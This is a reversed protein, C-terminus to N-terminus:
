SFLKRFFGKKTEQEQKKNQEETALLKQFVTANMNQLHENAKMLENDKKEYEKKWYEKEQKLDEIHQKLINILETNDSLVPTAVSSLEQKDVQNFQQNNSKMTEIRKERLYNIGKETIYYDGDQEKEMYGLRLLASKQRYINQTSCDLMKSVEKIKFGNDNM